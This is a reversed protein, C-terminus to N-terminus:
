DSDEPALDSTGRLESLKIELRQVQEDLTIVQARVEALEASLDSTRGVARMAFIIIGIFIIAVIMAAFHAAGSNSNDRRM